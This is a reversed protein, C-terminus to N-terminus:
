QSASRAHCLKTFVLKTATTFRKRYRFSCYSIALTLKGANLLDGPNSPDGDVKAIAKPVLLSRRLIECDM